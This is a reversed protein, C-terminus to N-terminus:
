SFLYGFSCWRYEEPRHVIGARIPIDEGYYVKFRRMVDDDSFERWPHMRVLLCAHVNIGM